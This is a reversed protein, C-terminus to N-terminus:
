LQKGLQSHWYQALIQPPWHHDLSTTTIAIVINSFVEVNYSPPCAPSQPEQPTNKLPPPNNWFFDM